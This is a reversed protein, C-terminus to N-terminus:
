SSLYSVTVWHIAQQRSMEGGRRVVEEGLKRLVRGIDPGPKLGLRILEQGKLPVEPRYLDGEDLVQTVALQAFLRHRELQYESQAPGLTALVDARSMTLLELGYPETDRLFRHVRLDDAGQSPLLVPVMHHRVLNVLFHREKNSLRLRESVREATPVGKEAHGPFRIRGDHQVWRTEPKGVDHLLAAMKLLTSRRRDATVTQAMLEPLRPDGLEAYQEAQLRELGRVVEFTHDLVDLHHYHNQTCGRCPRLEPLVQFLLGLEELDPLWDAVSQALLAFFEERIREGSCRRLLPARARTSERLAPEPRLGTVAALRPWRLMRLPDNDFIAESCARLRGERLDRRGELPDFWGESASWAIANVTFDRGRLDEELNQGAMACFDLWDGEKEVVRFIGREADLTVPSGGSIEAWRASAARADGPIVLDVDKSRRGLLADRLAGGVLYLPGGLAEELTGM